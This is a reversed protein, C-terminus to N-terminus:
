VKLNKRLVIWVRLRGLGRLRNKMSHATIFVLLERIWRPEGTESGSAIRSPANEASTFRAYEGM